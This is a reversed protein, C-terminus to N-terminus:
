LDLETQINVSFVVQLEFYSFLNVLYQKNVSRKQILCQHRLRFVLVLFWEQIYRM